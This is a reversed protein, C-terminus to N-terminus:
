KSAEKLVVVSRGEVEITDQPGYAIGTEGVYGEDTDIVKVWRLGYKKEPLVFPLFDHYANFIIYFSNDLIKEGKESVSRIGKGNLYIGLSKAFDNTWNEETM